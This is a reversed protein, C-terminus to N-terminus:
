IVNKEEKRSTWYCSTFILRNFMCWIMYITPKFFESFDMNLTRGKIREARSEWEPCCNFWLNLNNALIIKCDLYPWAPQTVWGWWCIPSTEVKFLAWYPWQGPKCWGTAWPLSMSHCVEWSERCDGWDPDPEHSRRRNLTERKGSQVQAEQSM